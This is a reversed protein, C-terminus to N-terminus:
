RGDPEDLVFTRKETFLQSRSFILLGNVILVVAGLIFGGIAKPNVRKGM